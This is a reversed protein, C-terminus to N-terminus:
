IAARNALGAREGNAFIWASLLAVALRYRLASRHETDGPSPDMLTTLHAGSTSWILRRCEVPQQTALIDGGVAVAWTKASRTLWTGSSIHPLAARPTQLRRSSTPRV